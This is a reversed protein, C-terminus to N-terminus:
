LQGVWEKIVPSVVGPNDDQVCHGEGPFVQLTTNARNSPLNIFYQGLPFDMPTIGDEEGWLILMPCVVDPMLLEPRPGPPGTLIRVFARFAGEREAATCISSVLADDVRSADKYVGQLASKVSEEGRVNDFLPKAIFDFKLVFDIVALVVSFVPVVAKYQWGFGDFDGPMRKVKNNMGGACNILVVGSALEPKTSAVHLAALSGISNGVLVAPEGVVNDVFDIVQDRWFEMCYEADPQDSSGFGVLDLAFVRNSLSLAKLTDRYQFSSVGFGHILVVPKGKDGQQRYACQMGKWEYTVLESVSEKTPSTSSRCRLPRRSAGENAKSARYKRQARPVAWVALSLATM